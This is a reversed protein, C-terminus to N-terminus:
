VALSGFKLLLNISSAANPTALYIKYDSEKQLWLQGPTLASFNLCTSLETDLMGPTTLSITIRNIQVKGQLEWFIFGTKNMPRQM